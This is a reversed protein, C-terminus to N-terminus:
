VHEVSEVGGAVVCEYPLLERITEEDARSGGYRSKESSFLPSTIPNPLWQPASALNFYILLDSLSKPGRWLELIPGIKKDPALRAKRNVFDRLIPWARRAQLLDAYLRRLGARSSGEPWSWSLRSATFTSEALPDPIEGMLAFEKRRGARVADALRKNSHSCFFLFPNEEGYEEGMFLMPINPALLLFSAALRQAPPPVLAALREGWARNGVQDHNQISAVFRDGPVDQAPGGWKGRRYESHRGDLVYTKELLKPLDEVAGFDVYKSHREGTLYAHIAHHFDDHWEADLGHGGQGRPLVV